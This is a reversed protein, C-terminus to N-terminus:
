QTNKWSWAEQIFLRLRKQSAKERGAYYVFQNNLGSVVSFYTQGFM